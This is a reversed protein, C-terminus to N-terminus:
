PRVERWKMKVWPEVYGFPDLRSHGSFIPIEDEYYVAMELHEGDIPGGCCCSVCPGDAAHWASWTEGIDDDYFLWQFEGRM